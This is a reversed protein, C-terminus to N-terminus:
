TLVISIEDDAANVCAQFDLGLTRLGTRDQDAIAAYRVKPCTITIINGNGGNAAFSLQGITGPTRWKGYFDYASVLIQEPDISGKPNRGTILTSIHGSAANMSERKALVNDLALDIKSCIVAYSDLLLAANLFVPPLITPYTPSLLAGDVVEFDCGEFAFHLLGPKGVEATINITGRAGWIRKIQGDQYLELTMSNTMNNTLPTYTVSNNASITENFGCGQMFKGWFPAVGKNGSGVMECDFSINGSRKGSLSPDRSLSGRLLDRPYQEIAPAFASGKHLVMDSANCAIKTGETNETKAALQTASIRMPM